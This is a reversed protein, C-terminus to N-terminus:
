SSKQGSMKGETFNNYFRQTPYAFDIDAHQQFAALLDEWIAHESGRRHRPDILYRMTLLVGSDKVSTYVYPTLTTYFIMYQKSAEKIYQEAEKSLHTAHKKVIEGLIEKAKRWNSEFTILVPMENWIYNFGQTSNVIVESLIMSNPLHIIRGTSQDADVWNGIELLSFKFMRIDIVDGSFSGIQIRDGVAFTRRWLVFVWGAVSKVTDQLAIAIGASILGLFTAVSAMGAFWIRGIIIFGLMVTAYITTKQWRYRVHPNDSNKWILRMIFFRLLLLVVIVAVSSFFKKQFVPGFAISEQFLASIHEM